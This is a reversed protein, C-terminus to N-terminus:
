CKHTIVLAKQTLKDVNYLKIKRHFTKNKSKINTLHIQADYVNEEAEEEEKNNDESVIEAAIWIGSRLKFDSGMMLKIHAFPADPDFIAKSYRNKNEDFFQKEVCDLVVVCHENSIDEYYDFFAYYKKGVEVLPHTNTM